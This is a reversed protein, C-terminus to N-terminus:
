VAREQRDPGVGLSEWLVESVHRFRINRPQLELEREYLGQLHMICGMDSSVIESAGGELLHTLKAMGMERSTWPHTVAFVGGFGCCQEAHQVPVLEVGEISRLLAEPQAADSLERMHCSRHFAVRRPYVGPWPKGEVATHIFESLEWTRSGLAVADEYDPQGHFLQGYGWRIMGACSGSPVVLTAANRFVQLTHRAVQIAAARDGANFAPQGCCTQDKEFIVKYGLYELLNATALGVEPYFADCLCTAMLHVRAGKAPLPGPVTAHAM